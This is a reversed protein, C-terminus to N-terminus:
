IETRDGSIHNDIVSGDEPDYDAPENMEADGPSESDWPMGHFEDDLDSRTKWSDYDKM